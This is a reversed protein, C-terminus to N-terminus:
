QHVDHTEGLRKEEHMGKCCCALPRLEQTGLGVNSVMSRSTVGLEFPLKVPLSVLILEVLTVLLVRTGVAIADEPAGVGEILVVLCTVVAFRAWM